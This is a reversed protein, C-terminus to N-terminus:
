TFSLPKDRWSLLFTITQTEEEVESTYWFEKLYEVYMASPQFTLAMNICCNSLFSLMPQFAENSYELLADTNNFGIISDACKFNVKSSPILQDEQSSTSKKIWLVQACCWAVVVYEAETSSMAVSTQNKASWCVLKGGLIPCGWLYEKKKRQFQNLEDTMALVWGEEELAEILKKPKIESLFNVYLCEFASAVDSDRIRSRTTIGALPEGIINVLDIHKDRSWRDQPIPLDFVSDALPSNIQHLPQVDIPSEDTDDQLDTSEVSSISESQVVEDLVPVEDELNPIPSDEKTSSQSIAEDDESFTVHFTEEMEQRRINFIEFAKAVPSYGLFFGDDEKEYLVDYDALKSKIWLIQACCWAAAVYEAATSSMAVSTQNKASWCVLKGGLIPCEGLPVREILYRFVRKVAVLRSEKPNAQYRACLCTYFQIYPRSTTLYMLSGTMGRFQIENVYVGSEDPGEEELAEILKKPKIELLFNVYLCEFASAVDSDRIRSKTTIGALPEGIINVLDIHKDRSWRDQPIPLDSVSDALPSNIQHLPQVDIPSEDTDDQLDTSEVSSISESQVVEDLVPVEDELNPIPSDEKTSSQSIAEDDESFTVHFTEEMEQRRINFIKFAKAVPSYGLFFGGEEKKTFKVLHDRSYEDTIVLTYKTHSITQPKVPGFLDMHLLHLCKSISFSRKTKFTAKHHKGTLSDRTGYGILVQLPKLMSVLMATQNGCDDESDSTIMPTSKSTSVDAKTLLVEKQTNNEQRKGKGRLAKVINEPIQESLLQDLHSQKKMTIEVWQGSRANGKGISPEDEAVRIVKGKDGKGKNNKEKTLEDIRQSLAAMGAKLGKYKGKYDNVKEDELAKFANFKLRLAAIKTDRTDSPGEYALYLETWM